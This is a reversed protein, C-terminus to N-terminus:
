VITRLGVSYFISLLCLFFEYRNNSEFVSICKIQNHTSLSWIEYECTRWEKKFYHYSTRKYFPDEIILKLQFREKSFFISNFFNCTFVKKSEWWKSLRITQVVFQVIRIIIKVKVQLFIDKKVIKANSGVIGNSEMKITMWKKLPKWLKWSTQEKRPLGSTGVLAFVKNSLYPNSHYPFSRFLSKDRINIFEMRDFLCLHSSCM